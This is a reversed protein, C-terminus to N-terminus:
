YQPWSVSARRDAQNLILFDDRLVEHLLSDFAM